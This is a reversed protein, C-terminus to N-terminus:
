RLFSVASRFTGRGNRGPRVADLACEKAPRSHPLAKRRRAVDARLLQVTPGSIAPLELEPACGFAAVRFERRDALTLNAAGLTSSPSGAV